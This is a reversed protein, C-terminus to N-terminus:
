SPPPPPPPPPSSPSGEAPRHRLNKFLSPPPRHKQIFKNGHTNQPNPSTPQNPTVLQRTCYQSNSPATAVILTCHRDYLPQTTNRIHSANRHIQPKNPIMMMMHFRPHHLARPTCTFSFFHDTPAIHLIKHIPPPNAWFETITLM